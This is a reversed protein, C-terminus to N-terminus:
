AIPPRLNADPILQPVFEAGTSFNLGHQPLHTAAGHAGVTGVQHHGHCGGHNHLAMKDPDNTPEEQTHGSNEVCSETATWDPGEAAHAISGCGISLSVLFGILLRM